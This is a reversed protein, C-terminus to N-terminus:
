TAEGAPQKTPQLSTCFFRPSIIGSRGMKSQGCFGISVMLPVLEVWWVTVCKWDNTKETHRIKDTSEIPSSDHSDSIDVLPNRANSILNQRLQLFSHSSPNKSYVDLVTLDLAHNLFQQYELANFRVTLCFPIMVSVNFSRL